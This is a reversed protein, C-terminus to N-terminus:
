GASRSARASLAVRLAAVALRRHRDHRRRPRPRRRSAISVLTSAAGRGHRVIGAADTAVDLASVASQEDTLLTVRSSRSGVAHRARRARGGHRGARQRARRRELGGLRRDGARVRRRSPRDGRRRPRRLGRSARATASRSCRRCGRTRAAAFQNQVVQQRLPENEARLREAESRADLLGDFWGYADRFPQAVREAAVQFPRLVAAAADQARAVPGDDAQRFSVTILGLALVVLVGM